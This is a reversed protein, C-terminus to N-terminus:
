TYHVDIIVQQKNCRDGAQRPNTSSRFRRDKCTCVRESTLWPWPGMNLSSSFWIHNCIRTDPWKSLGREAFLLCIELCDTSKLMKAIITSWNLFGAWRVSANKWERDYAMVYLIGGGWWMTLKWHSVVAAELTLTSHPRYKLHKFSQRLLVM